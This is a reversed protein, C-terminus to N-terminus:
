VYEYQCDGSGSHVIHASQLKTENQERKHAMVVYIYWGRDCESAGYGDFQDGAHVRHAVASRPAPPGTPSGDVHIPGRRRGLDTSSFLGDRTEQRLRSSEISPSKPVGPAVSCFVRKLDAIRLADRRKGLEQGPETANRAFIQCLSSYGM